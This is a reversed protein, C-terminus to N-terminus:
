TKERRAVISNYAYDLLEDLKELVKVTNEQEAYRANDWAEHILKSAIAKFQTLEDVLLKKTKM